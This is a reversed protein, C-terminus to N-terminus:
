PAEKLMFGVGRITHLMRAGFGKDLKERLHAMHVDIVNDLPTARSAVKWVDRALMERSVVEGQAHALYALVDFERPTLTLAQGQRQATRAVLDLSLAGVRIVREDTQKVRRLLVRVRALLESFAFPKALYDDAGSDLGSVRDAIEDRATLILVPVRATRERISRLFDLGDGDPLGLDLLVLDFSESTMLRGAEALNRAISVRYGAETLGKRVTVAVLSEDEVVLLNVGLALNILTELPM